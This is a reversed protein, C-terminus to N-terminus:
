LGPSPPSSKSAMFTEPEICTVKAEPGGARSRVQFDSGWDQFEGKTADIITKHDYEVMLPLYNLYGTSVALPTIEIEGTRMDFSFAKGVEPLTGEAVADVLRDEDILGRDQRVYNVYEMVSAKMVRDSLQGGFYTEFGSSWRNALYVDISACGEVSKTLVTGFACGEFLDVNTHVFMDKDGHREAYIRIDTDNYSLVTESSLGLEESASVIQEIKDLNKKAQYKMAMACTSVYFELLRGASLAAAHPKSTSPLEKPAASFTSFLREVYLLANDHFAYGEYNKFEDIIARSQVRGVGSVQVVKEIGHVKFLRLLDSVSLPTREFLLDDRDQRYGSYDGIRRALDTIDAYTAGSEVERELQAMLDEPVEDRWPTVYVDTSKGEDKWIFLLNDENPYRVSLAAHGDLTVATMPLNRDEYRDVIGSSLCAAHKARLDDETMAVAAILAKAAFEETSTRVFHQVQGRGYSKAWAIREAFLQKAYEDTAKLNKM